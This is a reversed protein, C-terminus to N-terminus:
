YLSELKKPLMGVFVLRREELWWRRVALVDAAVLGAKLEEATLRRWVAASTSCRGLWWNTRKLVSCYVIELDNKPGGM